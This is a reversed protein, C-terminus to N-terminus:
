FKKKKHHTSTAVQPASGSTGPGSICQPRRPWNRLSKGEGKRQFFLFFPPPSPCPQSYKSTQKKGSSGMLLSCTVKPLITAKRLEPQQSVRSSPIPFISQTLLTLLLDHPFCPKLLPILSSSVPARWILVQHSVLKDEHSEWSTFM